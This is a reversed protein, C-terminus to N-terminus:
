QYNNTNGFHVKYNLVFSLQHCPLAISHYCYSLMKNTLLGCFCRCYCKTSYLQVISSKVPLHMVNLDKKDIGKGCTKDINILYFLDKKFKLSIGVRAIKYFSVVIKNLRSCNSNATFTSYCWISVWVSISLM